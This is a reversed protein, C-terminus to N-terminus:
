GAPISLHAGLILDVPSPPAGCFWLPRRARKPLPVDFECPALAHGDNCRARRRFTGALRDGPIELQQGLVSPPKPPMPSPMDTCIAGSPRRMMQSACSLAGFFKVATSTESGRLGLTTHLGVQRVGIHARVRELGAAVHHRHGILGRCFSRCAPRSRATRYKWAPSDSTSRTRRSSPVANARRADARTRRRRIRACQAGACASKM